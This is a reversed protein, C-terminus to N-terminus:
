KNVSIGDNIIASSNDDTDIDQTYESEFEFQSLFEKYENNQKYILYQSYGVVVALVIILIVIVIFLKNIIRTNDKITDKLMPVIMTNIGNEVGKINDVIDQLSEGEKM